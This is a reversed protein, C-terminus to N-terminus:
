FRPFRVTFTVGAEPNPRLFVEGGHSDVIRKVIPLGLGTGRKRTSYFPEFVKEVDEQKIGSGRDSIELEVYRGASRTRLWVKQGKSSAQLANTILNTIVQEIRTKDLLLPPLSPDLETKIDVGAEEAVPGTVLVTGEVLDNLDAETRDLTLPRGFDLMEKVMSELRPTEQIVTELKKRNPDEPKLKRFIQNSFGGIAMLPTKMDHAIEAVAKGIAAFREAQLAAAHRARERETLFGLICAISIYLAGEIVRSFDRFSFKQWEMIVYPFYLLFVALSVYLAGKLGFWFSGLILPLYFLMRYVVHHYKLPSPTLYHLLLIGSIMFIIVIIKGRDRHVSPRPNM